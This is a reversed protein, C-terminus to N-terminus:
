GVKAGEFPTYGRFFPSIGATFGWVADTSESMIMVFHFLEVGETGAYAAWAASYDSYTVSDVKQKGCPTTHIAKIIGNEEFFEVTHPVKTVNGAPNKASPPNEKSIKIDPFGPIPAGLCINLEYKGLLM